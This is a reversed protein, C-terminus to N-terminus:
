STCGSTRGTLTLCNGIGNFVNDIKEYNFGGNKMTLNIAMFEKAMGLM